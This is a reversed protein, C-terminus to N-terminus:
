ELNITQVSLIGNPVPMLYSNAGMENAENGPTWLRSFLRGPFRVDRTRQRFSWLSFTHLALYSMWILLWANSSAILLVLALGTSVIALLIALRDWHMVWFAFWSCCLVVVQPTHLIHEPELDSYLAMSVATLCVYLGFGFYTPEPVGTKHFLEREKADACVLLFLLACCETPQMHM